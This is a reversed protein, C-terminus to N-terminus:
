SECTINDEITGKNNIEMFFMKFEETIRLSQLDEDELMHEFDDYGNVVSRKLADLAEANKELRSYSCALNYWAYSDEPKLAILRLDLDLGKEYFGNKTYWAGLCDLAEAFNNQDELLALYFDREFEKTMVLSKSDM